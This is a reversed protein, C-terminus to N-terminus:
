YNGSCYTQTAAINSIHRTAKLKVVEQVTPIRLDHHRTCNYVVSRESNTPSNKVAQKYIIYIYLLATLAINLFIPM